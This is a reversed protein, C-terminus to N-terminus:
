RYMSEVSSTLFEQSTLLESGEFEGDNDADVLLTWMVGDQILGGPGAESVVCKRVGDHMCFFLGTAYDLRPLTSTNYLLEPDPIPSVDLRLRYLKGSEFGLLLLFRGEPDVALSRVPEMTGRYLEEKPRM